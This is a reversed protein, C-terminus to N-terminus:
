VQGSFPDIRRERIQKLVWRVNRQWRDLLDVFKAAGAEYNLTDEIEKIREFFKSHTAGAWTWEEETPRLERYDRDTEAYIRDLTRDMIAKEKDDVM